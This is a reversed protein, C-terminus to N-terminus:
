KEEFLHGEPPEQLRRDLKVLGTESLSKLFHGECLRSCMEDVSDTTFADPANGKLLDSILISPYYLLVFMDVERDEVIGDPYLAIYTLLDHINAKDTGRAKSLGKQAETHIADFYAQSAVGRVSCFSVLSANLEEQLLNLRSGRGAEVFHLAEHLASGIFGFDSGKWGMQGVMEMRLPSSTTDWTGQYLYSPPSRDSPVVFITLDLETGLVSGGRVVAKTWKDLYTPCIVDALQDDEFRLVLTTNAASKECQYAFEDQRLPGGQLQSKLQYQLRGDIMRTLALYGSTNPGEYDERKLFPHYISDPLADTSCATVTRLVMFVTIIITLRAAACDIFM